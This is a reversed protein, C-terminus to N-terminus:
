NLATANQIGGDRREGVPPHAKRGNPHGWGLRGGRHSPPLWGATRSTRRANERQTYHTGVTPGSLEYYFGSSSYHFVGHM